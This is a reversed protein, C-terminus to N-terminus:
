FQVFRGHEQILTKALWTFCRLCSVIFGFMMGDNVHWSAPIDEVGGGGGCKMGEGGCGGVEKGLGGGGGRVARGM